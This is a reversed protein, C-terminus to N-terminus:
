GRRSGPVPVSRIVDDLVDRVDARGRPILRHALVVQAVAHLDDPTIFERGRLLARARALRLWAQGARPSAGLRLDRHSRTAALIDVVYGLLVPAAHLKPVLRTIAHVSSVEAVPRLQDLTSQGAPASGSMVAIESQRDPYGISTRAMFRDLQSEPLPYTGEQEVPNQTAIVMFPRPLTHTTSDASIQREEMAELLASQVKPSARNIEDCLVINAFIPGPRFSFENTTTDIVTIGTLDSPLLDPTFQVRSTEGAVSKALAKALLTKGVGPVDEVLLHGEAALCLLALEVQDPKGHLVMAINEGIKTLLAGANAIVEGSPRKTGPGTPAATASPAPRQSRHVVPEGRAARAAALLEDPLADEDSTLGDGLPAPSSNPDQGEFADLTSDMEPETETAMNAALSGPM